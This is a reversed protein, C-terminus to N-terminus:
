TTAPVLVELLFDFFDPLRDHDLLVVDLLALEDDLIDDTLLCIPTTYTSKLLNQALKLCTPVADIGAPATSSRKILSPVM